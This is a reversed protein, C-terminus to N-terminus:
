EAVLKIVGEKYDGSLYASHRYLKRYRRVLQPFEKELFPMFQAMASPMLFLVDGFLFQSNHEAAACALRGLQAPSDTLGPLIPAANV